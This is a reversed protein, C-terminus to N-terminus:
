IGVVYPLGIEINGYRFDTDNGYGENALAVKADIGAARAV